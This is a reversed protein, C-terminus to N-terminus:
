DNEVIEVTKGKEWIVEYWAKLTVKYVGNEEYLNSADVHIGCTLVHEGDLLIDFHDPYVNMLLRDEYERFNERTIGYSELVKFCFEDVDAAVKKSLEAMDKYDPCEVDNEYLMM